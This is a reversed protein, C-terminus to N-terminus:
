VNKNRSTVHIKKNEERNIRLMMNYILMYLIKKVKFKHNKREHNIIAVTIETTNDLRWKINMERQSKSSIKSMLVKDTRTLCNIKLM